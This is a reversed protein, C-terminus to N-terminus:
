LFSIQYRSARAYKLFMLSKFAPRPTSPNQTIKGWTGIGSMFTRFKSTKNPLKHWYKLVFFALQAYHLFYLSWFFHYSAGLGKKTLSHSNSHSHHHKGSGEGNTGGNMKLVTLIRM